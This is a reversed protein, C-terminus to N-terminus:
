QTAKFGIEEIQRKVKDKTHEKKKVWLKRKEQEGREIVENKVTYKLLEEQKLM